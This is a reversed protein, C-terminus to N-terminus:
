IIQLPATHLLIEIILDRATCHVLASSKNSSVAMHCQWYSNILLWQCDTLSESDALGCHSWRLASLLGSLGLRCALGSSSQRISCSILSSYSCSQIHSPCESNLNELVPPQVLVRRGWGGGESLWQCNGVHIWRSIWSWVHPGFTMRTLHKFRAPDLCDGNLQVGAGSPGARQRHHPAGGVRGMGGRRLHWSIPHSIVLDM